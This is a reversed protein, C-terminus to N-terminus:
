RTEHNPTPLDPLTGTQVVDSAIDRLKRHLGQSAARLLAFAEDQTIKHHAMLVGIAAGIERSTRLATELNAAQEEAEHLAVLSSAHAAFVTALDIDDDTFAGPQEAFLNLAASDGAVLRLSLVSRISTEERLAECFRPWRPDGDVDFLLYDEDRQASGICPGEGIEYQLADAQSAVPGSAALSRGRGGALVTISAGACAEIHKVALQVMRELAAQNDGPGHLEKGLEAFQQSLELM